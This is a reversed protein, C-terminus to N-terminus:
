IRTGAEGPCHSALLAPMCRLDALKPQAFHAVVAPTRHREWTRRFRSLARYLEASMADRAAHALGCRATAHRRSPTQSPTLDVRCGGPDAVRDRRVAISRPFRAHPCCWGRSRGRRRLWSEVLAMQFEQSVEPEIDWWAPGEELGHMLRVVLEPNAGIHAYPDISVWLDPDTQELKDFRIPYDVHAWDYPGEYGVFGDPLARHARRSAGSPTITAPCRPSRGSRPARLSDSWCSM